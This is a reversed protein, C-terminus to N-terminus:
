KNGCGKGRESLQSRNTGILQRKSIIREDGFSIGQEAFSKQQRCLCMDQVSIVAIKPIEKLTLKSHPLVEGHKNKSIM